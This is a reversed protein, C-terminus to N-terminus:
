VRYGDFEQCKGYPDIDNYYYLTLLKQKIDLGLLCNKVNSM